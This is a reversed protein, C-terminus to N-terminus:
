VSIFIVPLGRVAHSSNYERRVDEIINVNNNLRNVM